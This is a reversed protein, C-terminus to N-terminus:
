GSQRVPHIRPQVLRDVAFRDCLHGIRKGIACAPIPLSRVAPKFLTAHVIRTKGEFRDCLYGNGPEKKRGYRYLAKNSFRHYPDTWGGSHRYSQESWFPQM